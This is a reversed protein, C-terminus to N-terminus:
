NAAFSTAIPTQVSFVLRIRRMARSDLTIRRRHQRDTLRRRPEWESRLGTMSCRRASNAESAM